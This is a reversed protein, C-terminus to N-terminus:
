AGQLLIDAASASDIIVNNVTRMDNAIQRISTTWAYKLQLDQNTYYTKIEYRFRKDFREANLQQAIYKDSETLFEEPSLKSNGALEAWVRYTVKVCEILGMMTILSNMPDSPDPAATQLQPCFLTRINKAQFWIGGFDYYDVYEEQTLDTLQMDAPDLITAENRPTSDPHAGSKWEGNGSGQYNAMMKLVEITAPVPLRYDRDLMYSSQLVHAIRYVSTSDEVSEAHQEADSQLTRLRSMCESDTLLPENAVQMADIFAVDKRISTIAQALKKTEMTFGPDYIISEPNLAHNKHLTAWNEFQTRVLSDFTSFTMTGNNGGTAYLTTSESMVLSEDDFVMHTYPKGDIDTGGFLNVNHIPDEEDILFDPNSQRELAIFANAITEWNNLYVTHDEFTGYIRPYANRDRYRDVAESTFNLASEELFTFDASREGYLGTVVSGTSKPTSRERFVIRFPYVGYKDALKLNAKSRDKKTPAWLSFGRDNGKAGFHPTSMDLIPYSQAQTAEDVGLMAGALPTRAGFTLGSKDNVLVWRLRIGPVTVGDVVQKNGNQDLAYYGDTDLQYTPVEERIMELSLMVNAPDGADLPKLRNFIMKSNAAAITRIFPTNPNTFKNNFENLKNGYVGKLTALDGLINGEPGDEAFGFVKCLHTPISLSPVPRTTDASSKAGTYVIRPSGSQEAKLTTM